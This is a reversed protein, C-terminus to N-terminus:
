QFVGLAARESLKAQSSAGDHPKVDNGAPLAVLLPKQM